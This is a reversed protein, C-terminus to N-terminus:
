FPCPSLCLSLWWGVCREGKKKREDAKDRQAQEIRQKERSATAFDKNHLADIVPAWM